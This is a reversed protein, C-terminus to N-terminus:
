DASLPAAPGALEPTGPVLCALREVTPLKFPLDLQGLESEVYQQAAALLEMVRGETRTEAALVQSRPKDAVPNLLKILEWDRLLGWSGDGRQTAGVIVTRVPGDSGTIRDRVLKGICIIRFSCFLKKLAGEGDRTLLLCLGPLQPRGHAHRSEPAILALPILGAFKKRWDVAPEGFAEVREIQLLGLVQEALQRSCALLSEVAIRIDL